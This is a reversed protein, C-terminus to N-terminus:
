SLITVRHEIRVGNGIKVGGFGDIYVCENLTVNSGISIRYPYRLTVGEYIRVKGMHMIFLKSIAYRFLDGLPSPFCKGIGYLLCYIGMIICDFYKYTRQKGSHQM